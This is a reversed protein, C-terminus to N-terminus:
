FCFFFFLFFVTSICERFRMIQLIYVYGVDDFLGMKAGWLHCTCDGIACRLSFRTARAKWQGLPQRGSVQIRWWLCCSNEHRKRKMTEGVGNHPFSEWLHTALSEHRWCTWFQFYFLYLYILTLHSSKDHWSQCLFSEFRQRLIYTISADAVLM